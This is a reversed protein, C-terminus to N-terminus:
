QEQYPKGQEYLKLRQRAVDGDSKAYEPFSLAKRQWKIAETFNGDAAYAAALTDLFEPNKWESLEAARRAYEIAKKGDRCNERQCTAL